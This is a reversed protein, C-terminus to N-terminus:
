CKVHLALSSNLGRKVSFCSYGLELASFRKKSYFTTECPTLGYYALISFDVLEEDLELM